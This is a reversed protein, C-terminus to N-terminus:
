SGGKPFTVTWVTGDRYSHSIRGRLKEEVTQKAVKLGLRGDREISFDVPLGPGDDTVELLYEDASEEFRVSIRGGDEALAHHLANTFLETAVISLDTTRNYDLRVPEIDLDLHVRDRVEHGELIQMLLWKLNSRIDVKVFDDSQFVFGHISSMSMIRSEADRLTRKVTDDDTSMMQMNLMGVIMALNNRVRHHLEALLVTREELAKELGEEHMKLETVDEAIGQYGKVDQDVYIPSLSFALKKRGDVTEVDFVGMQDQGGLANSEMILFARRQDPSVVSSMGKMSISSVEEPGLVIHISPSYYFYGLEKDRLFVFKDEDSIIRNLVFGEWRLMTMVSGVVIYIASRSVVPVWQDFDITGLHWSFFMYLGIYGAAITVSFGIGRHPFWYAVMMVPLCFMHPFIVNIGQYMSALAILLISGTVAFIALAQQRTGIEKASLRLLFRHLRRYPLPHRGYDRMARM